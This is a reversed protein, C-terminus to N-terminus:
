MKAQFLIGNLAIASILPPRTLQDSIRMGEPVCYLYLPKDEFRFMMSFNKLDEEAHALETYTFDNM